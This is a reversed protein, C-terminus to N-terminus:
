AALALTCAPRPKLSRVKARIRPALDRDIGAYDLVKLFDASEFFALADGRIAEDKRTVDQYALKLVAVWMAREPCDSPSQLSEPERDEELAEMAPPTNAVPRLGKADIPKAEKLPPKPALPLLPTKIAERIALILLRPTFVPYTVKPNRQRTKM